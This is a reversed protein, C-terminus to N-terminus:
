LLKSITLMTGDYFYEVAHNYATANRLMIELDSQKVKVQTLGNGAVVVYINCKLKGNM